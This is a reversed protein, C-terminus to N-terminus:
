KVRKLRTGVKVKAKDGIRGVVRGVRNVDLAKGTTLVIVRGTREAADPYTARLWDIFDPVCPVEEQKGPEGQIVFQPLKGSVDLHFPGEHWTLIFGEVRWLGSFFLLSRYKKWEASDRPRVKYTAELM